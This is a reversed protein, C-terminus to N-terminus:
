SSPAHLMAAMPDERRVKTRQYAEMEEETPEHETHMVNYARKRLDDNSNTTDTQNNNNSSANQQMLERVRAEDLATEIPGADNENGWNSGDSSAKLREAAKRAEEPLDDRAPLQNAASQQQTQQQHAQSANSSSASVQLLEQENAEKGAEGLCYSNRITSKCCAYGWYGNCYYSGFIQSHNNELVDEEYRSRPVSGEEGKVINGHSDYEAYTESQGFLLEPPAQESEAANGYRELLSSQAKSSLEKQKKAFEKYVKEAQSPMAQVHVDQGHQNAEAAHRHLQALYETEGTGRIANEGAFSKKNPDIHPTPDERMARTKPDYYASNTDLNLLYKATDERIRLNRVSMTAGGGASRVRKEVKDFSQQASDDLKADDDAAANHSASPAEEARKQAAHVREREQELAKERKKQEIRDYWDMVEKYTAPDFGNYRDRKGDYSLEFSQVKEDPAIGKSTLHAGKRRPRETCLKSEHTMAGCNACAGKRYKKAQYTKAGRDYWQHEDFELQNWNRQHKLTPKDENMYWPTASMFQPIHPNIEKGEEDVAPQALGAKRAEELEQQKKREGM